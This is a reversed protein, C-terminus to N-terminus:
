KTTSTTTTTEEVEEYYGPYPDYFYGYTRRCAWIVAIIVLVLLILLGLDFLPTPASYGALAPAYAYPGTFCYLCGYYGYFPHWFPLGFGSYFYHSPYVYAGSPTRVYRTTTTTSTTTTPKTATSGAAATRPAAPPPAAPKAAPAPAAPKAAPAPAAARAPPAVARGVSVSAHGGGGGGGGRAEVSISGALLMLAAVSAASILKKM